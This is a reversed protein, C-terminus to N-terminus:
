EAADDDDGYALRLILALLLQGVGFPLGMHWPSLTRTEAAHMLVAAGAVFYWAGALAVPRPLFRLAAFLSLAILMQWLGPLLWALDPAFRAVISAVVLGCAGIPLFHEVANWLMADALGGHHRHTRAFMEVGICIASVVALGVWAALTTLDDSPALVYAQATALTLALLGTAAMVAPGFGRFMTGAALQLRINAIDGLAKRLDSM